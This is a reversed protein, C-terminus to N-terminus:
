AAVATKKGRKGKPKAAPLEEQPAAKAAIATRLAATIDDLRSVYDSLESVGCHNVVGDNLAAELESICEHVFEPGYEHYDEMGDTADSVASAIEEPRLADEADDDEVTTVDDEHSADEADTIAEPTGAETGADETGTEQEQDDEPAATFAVVNSPTETEPETEATAAPTAPATNIAPPPPPLTAGSAQMAAIQATQEAIQREMDERRQREAELAAAAEADRAAKGDLDVGHDLWCELHDEWNEKRLIAATESPAPRHRHTGIATFGIQLLECQRLTLSNYLDETFKVPKPQGPVHFRAQRLTDTEPQTFNRLVWEAKRANSLSSRKIGAALLLDTGEDGLTFLIKGQLLFGLRQRNETQVYLDVREAPAMAGLTSLALIDAPADTTTPTPTTKKAM